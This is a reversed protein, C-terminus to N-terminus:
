YQEVLDRRLNRPERQYGKPEIHTRLVFVSKLPVIVESGSFLFRQLRYLKIIDNNNDIRWHINGEVATGLIPDM